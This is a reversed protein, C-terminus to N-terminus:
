YIGENIDVYVLANMVPFFLTARFSFCYAHRRIFVYFIDLKWANQQFMEKLVFKKNRSLPQSYAVAYMHALNRSPSISM